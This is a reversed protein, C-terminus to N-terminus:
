PAPMLGISRANRKLPEASEVNPKSDGPFWKQTITSDATSANVTTIM